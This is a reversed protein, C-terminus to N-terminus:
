QNNFTNVFDTLQQTNEFDGEHFQRRNGKILWTAPIAGSWDKDAKDLWNNYDKDGLWIVESTYNKKKLFPKLKSEIQNKADLSVLLVKIKQGKTNQTFEEFYPLERVCPACWTAWFNIVYLTDNEKVIAKEFDAFKEFSRFQQGHSTAAFSLGFLLAFVISKRM